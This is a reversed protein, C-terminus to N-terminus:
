HNLLKELEKLEHEVIKFGENLLTSDTLDIKLIKLLDFAYHSSGSALFNLYNKQSLTKEEVLNHVVLSAMLLGTAYKYPYYSHRYIHGLKMWEIFNLDDYIVDTGYYKKIIKEYKETLVKPTLPSTKKTDYLEKEFETYMTQKYVTTFYNEIEKSLYFIKEEKTTANESLYRNLLIENVISAIEGVFVTSEEYIFPLHEKSLYDNVSHGIEHILNKLDVYTGRFNLFSYTHWSFIITQHKNPTLEADIHGNLLYDIVELYKEGLPKLAQKVIEIAEEITYKKDLNSVIPVGFDYLHPKEIELVRAKIKLYKRIIKINNNVSQILSDIIKSDINEEFLVKELVSSYNELEANKVRYGIIKDLINAFAKEKEKFDQNVVLYTEKRLEGNKSSLYDNSNTVNLEILEGERNIKGYDIDRLLKNYSDIQKNIEDKNQRIQIEEFDKSHTQMRFRNELYFEYIKLNKNKTMYNEIQEHGLKLIKSKIFNLEAEVETTLQEAIQKQKLCEENYIDKYYKLSGYVLATNARERIAWEKELLEFVIEEDLKSNEQKKIEKLDKEIQEKLKYFDKDNKFLEELNWVLKMKTM